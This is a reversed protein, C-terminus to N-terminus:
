GEQKWTGKIYIFQRIKRNAESIANIDTTTYVRYVVAEEGWGTCWGIWGSFGCNCNIFDISKTFSPAAVVIDGTSYLSGESKVTYAKTTTENLWAEFVGNNWKRYTWNGEQGQEVIYDAMNEKIFDLDAIKNDTYNELEQKTESMAAVINNDTYDILEQKTNSVASDINSDAYNKLQTKTDDIAAAIVKNKVLNESKDSIVEDIVLEIDMASQADGGLFM